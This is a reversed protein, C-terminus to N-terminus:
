NFLLRNLRAVPLGVVNYYDGAIRKVLLAGNGQIGYGGAKDFPEDTAIYEEIEQPTLPYFEVETCESFIQRQGDKLICVGTIVLHTRGSLLSLMQFADDRGDPKGLIKGDLLVVTDCGLVTSDPYNKAVKEAKQVALFAASDKPLLGEPVSEDLDAPCVEFDPLLMKLLEQRRPSASALVYKM